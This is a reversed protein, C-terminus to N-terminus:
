ELTLRTQKSLERRGVGGGLLTRKVLAHADGLRRLLLGPDTTLLEGLQTIKEHLEPLHAAVREDESVVGGLGDDARAAAVADLREDLRRALELREVLHEGAHARTTVLNEDEGLKGHHEVHELLEALSAAVCVETEVTAGGERPAPILSGEEVLRIAPMEDVEAGRAPPRPILKCDASM